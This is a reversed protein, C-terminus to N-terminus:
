FEYHGESRLYQDVKAYIAYYYYEKKLPYLEYTILKAELTCEVYKVFEDCEIYSEPAVVALVSRVDLALDCDSQVEISFRRDDLRGANYSILKHLAKM